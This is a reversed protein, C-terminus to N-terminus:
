EDYDRHHFGDTDNEVSRLISRCVGVTAYANMSGVRGYALGTSGDAYAYLGVVLAGVIVAADDTGDFSNHSVIEDVTDLINDHDM